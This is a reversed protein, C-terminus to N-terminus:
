SAVHKWSVCHVWVCCGRSECFFLLQGRDKGLIQPKLCRTFHLASITHYNLLNWCFLLSKAKRAAMKSSVYPLIYHVAYKTHATHAAHNKRVPDISLGTGRSDPPASPPLMWKQENFCCPPYYLSKLWISGESCTVQIWLFLGSISQPMELSLLFSALHCQCKEPWEVCSSRFGASLMQNSHYLLFFCLSTVPM